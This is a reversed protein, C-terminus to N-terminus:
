ENYLIKYIYYIGFIFKNRPYKVYFVCSKLWNWRIQNFNTKRLASSLHIIRDVYWGMEKSLRRVFDHNYVYELIDAPVERIFTEANDELADISSPM